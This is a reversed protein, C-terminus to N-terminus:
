EYTSKIEELTFFYSSNCFQCDLSIKGNVSLDELENIAITKLIQFSKEKSCRCKHTINTPKFVHITTENYLNYLLKESSVQPEILEGAEITNFLIEAENWNEEEEASSSPLAQIMIAGGVWSNAIKWSSVKVSTKIQESQTFYQKLAKELNFDEVEVIGQYRQGQHDITISLFLEETNLPCLKINSFGRIFGPSQYDAIIYEKKNKIRLEISLTIQDKFESGLLSVILLMNSLLRATEDDYSHNALISDLTNGLKVIKGKIQHNYITFPLVSNLM